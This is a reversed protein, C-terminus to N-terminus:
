PTFLRWSPIAWISPEAVKKIVNGNYVILGGLWETELKKAVELMNKYDKHIIDARSKIELAIIGHPTQIILDLESGSRTRYFYLEARRNATKIWKICESVVMNEYLQGSMAGSFGSLSRWIGIDIWYIKPSKVVSSTLNKYYPQLLEVQYSLKLYELYRKATDASIGADRALESYNLLQAARMASLKQFIRFPQLDSIRALDALDRELYTYEYDQIWKFRQEDTLTLLSPMGGWTLLHAQAAKRQAEDEDFLVAAINHLTENLEKTQLLYDFLPLALPFHHNTFLESMMFPFLEYISVRGALSERIQKMLLIQSSGLLVSFSLSGEDYAFKMKEFVSPEKQAEDIIAAGIQQGWQATHISKLKERNEIADLNIYRLNPYQVKSITTKGTQRAGTVLVIQSQADSPLFTSLIRKKYDFHAAM